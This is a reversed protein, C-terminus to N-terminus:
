WICADADAIAKTTDDSYKTFNKMVINTVKEERISTALPRRTLVVISDIDPSQCCQELIESGAFGTSGALVIKM